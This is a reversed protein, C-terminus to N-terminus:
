GQCVVSQAFFFLIHFIRVKKKGRSSRASIDAFVSFCWSKSVLNTYLNDNEILIFIPPLCHQLSLSFISTLRTAWNAVWSSINGIKIGYIFWTIESFFPMEAIGRKIKLIKCQIKSGTNSGHTWLSQTDARNQEQKKVITKASKTKKPNNSRDYRERFFCYDIPGVSLADVLAHVVGHWFIWGLSTFSSPTMHGIRREFMKIAPGARVYRCKYSLPCVLSSCSRVWVFLVARGRLIISVFAWLDHCVRVRLWRCVCAFVSWPYM